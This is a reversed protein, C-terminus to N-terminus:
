GSGVAPLMHTGTILYLGINKLELIPLYSGVENNKIDLPTKKDLLLSIATVNHAEIAWHLATRKSNDQINMNAGLSLLLRSPDM